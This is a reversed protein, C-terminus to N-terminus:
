FAISDTISSLKHRAMALNAKSRDLAIYVFLNQSKPLLRILHYQKGLTILIDDIEDKLGLEKMVRLKSRVVDTNGAAAVELNLGGGGTMGLAMGSSYDALVVGVAGDIQMCQALIENVNNMHAGPHTTIAPQPNINSPTSSPPTSSQVPTAKPTKPKAGKPATPVMKTTNTENELIAQLTPAPQNSIQNFYTNIANKHHNLLKQLPTTIPIENGTYVPSLAIKPNTWALMEYVAEEASKPGCIAAIPVGISFKVRGEQQENRVVVTSSYGETELLRMLDALPVNRPQEPNHSVEASVCGGPKATRSPFITFRNSASL